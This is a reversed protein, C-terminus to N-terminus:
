FTDSIERVQLKANLASERMDAHVLQMADTLAISSIRYYANGQETIVVM